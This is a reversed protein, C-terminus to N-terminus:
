VNKKDLEAFAEEWSDGIATLVKGDKKFGIRKYNVHHETFATTGFHKKAARLAQIQTNM